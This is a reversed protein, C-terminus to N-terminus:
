IKQTIYTKIILLKPNNGLGAFRVQIDDCLPDNGYAPIDFQTNATIEINDYVTVTDNGQNLFRIGAFGDAPINAAKTYMEPKIQKSM